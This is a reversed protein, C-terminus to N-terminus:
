EVVRLLGRPPTRTLAGGGVVTKVLGFMLCNLDEVDVDLSQAIGAKSVGEERLGALMKEIILSQECMSGDPEKKRYGKQSLQICLQRYHWESLVGVM